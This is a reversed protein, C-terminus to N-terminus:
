CRPRSRASTWANHCPTARASMSQEMGTARLRQRFISSGYQSGRDSHFIIGQTGRRAALASDLAEVVLDSRLPTSAGAAM